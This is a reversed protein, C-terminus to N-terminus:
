REQMLLINSMKVWKTREIKQEINIGEHKNQNNNEFRNYKPRGVHNKM